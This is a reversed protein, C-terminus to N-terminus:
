DSSCELDQWHRRIIEMRRQVTSRSCNLKQAIEAETFGEIRLTFVGRLIPDDLRQVLNDLVDVFEAAFEPTPERSLIGAHETFGSHENASAFCADFATRRVNRRQQEDFRHRRMVKRATLSFLLRWLGERDHLDPFRGLKIGTCFSRFASQVADEEDYVRRTEPRLRHRALELLGCCFHNWLKQAAVPESNRLEDLWASVPDDSKM